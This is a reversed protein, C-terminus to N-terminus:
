VREKGKLKDNFDYLDDLKAIALEMDVGTLNQIDYLMKILQEYDQINGQVIEKVSKM